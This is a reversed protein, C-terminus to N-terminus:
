FLEVDSNMEKKHLLGQDSLTEYCHVQNRGHEKAFYLAEDAQGLVTSPIDYNRILSYGVSVTVQGVGGPFAHSQVNQRFRDITLAADDPAINRLLIVFEEGGFRFLRDQQRFSQRMINAILILVEDGFLHGFRDNVRKFHDIDVVCLWNEPACLYRRGAQTGDELCDKNCASLLRSVTYDFTKRNSLGTLTDKQSDELLSLYNRYVALMGTVVEVQQPGLKGQSDINLCAVPIGKLFIPDCYRQLDTPLSNPNLSGQVTEQKELALTLLPYHSLPLFDDETLDPQFRIDGDESWAVPAAKYDADRAEIVLLQIHPVKTLETLSAVISKDLLAVDRHQTITGIQELITVARPSREITPKTSNEAEPEHHALAHNGSKMPICIKNGCLGNYRALHYM